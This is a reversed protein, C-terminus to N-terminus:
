GVPGLGFLMRGTFRQQAKAPLPHFQAAHVDRFLRELGAARYYGRGGALEMAKEVAAVAARAAVTKRSLVRGAAQEAPEFVGAATLRVLDEVVVRCTTLENDMEGALQFLLEGDDRGGERRRSALALAVEAAREAAGLYVSMILPMAMALVVTWSPHFAGRPRRLSVAADPVFVRDFRMTNSGTGRMGMTDWDDMLRVGEGRLPVAFHLVLPGREPDDFAASTVAVAGAPCGSAFPKTATFLYGGDARELTGSSELWDNAGTSVLVVEDAAVKRLLADSGGAHRWRWAATAVLHQHMSLALATSACGHALVRLADAVEAHSAGGGGLETPVGASFLRRRKLEAYSDAVFAGDRDCSEARSALLPVLARARELLSDQAAGAPAPPEHTLVTM